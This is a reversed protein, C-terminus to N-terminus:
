LTFSIGVKLALDTQVKDYFSFKTQDFDYVVLGAEGFFGLASGAPSFGLGAGVHATPRNAKRGTGKESMKALGGGFYAFPKLSGSSARLMIDANLFIKNWGTECEPLCGILPEVVTSTAFAGDLRLGLSGDLWYTANGGFNLGNKFHRHGLGGSVPYAVQGLDAIPSVAGAYVGLQLGGEDQALLPSALAVTALLATSLRTFVM